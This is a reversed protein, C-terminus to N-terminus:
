LHSTSRQSQEIQVYEPSHEMLHKHTGKALLEGEMLLIIQDFEEVAGIKQTVSILTVDPYNRAINKLIKQEIQTDVRATFDDLLLIKPNLALARALMIRQKQGGSLATGRESVVTELQQPLAEIFDKLEATEIAKEFDEAKVTSSFAINERVSMNFLVSDQFVFSVQEHLSKKDYDNMSKGDFEIQGSSPRILGTLLHLLQTKGAATPGIIATRTGAKVEFSVDKLASKEGYVVSVNKLEVDGKLPAIIKGTEEYEESNLVEAIRQYSASARAMINSVFGLMFIPFILIGLYSNFAAFDGLTMSGAIVFHGGLVLIVVIALTAIFTVIPIMIAFLRLIKMGVNMADTNAELFKNTELHQSNLIRILGSGLISENIVKNLWDIVEQAKKFLTRVKSLVFFFTGGILPVIGLVAWALRWDIMLLLVGSGIILLISSILSVIAQSVFMKVADVDSTLNTLLKSSSIEQVYSHSQLSIKDALQKRLDRAVRESAYTQVINQLYTLMFILFAAGAFEFTIKQFDLSSQAYADIGGRIIQPIWLNLGNSLIALVALAVVWSRYPKLVSFLNSKM